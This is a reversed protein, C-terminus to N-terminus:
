AAMKVPQTQHPVHLQKNHKDCAMYGWVASGVMCAFLMPVGIFFLCLFGSILFAPLMILAAKTNSYLLGLPGFCFGLIAGLIPNKESKVIVTQTSVNSM